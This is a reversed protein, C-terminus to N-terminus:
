LNNWRCSIKLLFQLATCGLQATLVRLHSWADLLLLLLREVVPLPELVQGVGPFEFELVGVLQLLEDGVGFFVHTFLVSDYLQSILTHTVCALYKILYYSM